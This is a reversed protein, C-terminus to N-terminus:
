DTGMVDSCQVKYGRHQLGEQGVAVRHPDIQQPATPDAPVVTEGLAAAIILGQTALAELRGEILGRQYQDLYLVGAVIIALALLNLTLIRLTLSSFRRKPRGERRVGRRDDAGAKHRGPKRAWRRRRTPAPDGAGGRDPRPDARATDIVSAM